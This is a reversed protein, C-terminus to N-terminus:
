SGTLLRRRRAKQRRTAAAARIRACRCRESRCASLVSLGVALESRRGGSTATETQTLDVLWWTVTQTTHRSAGVPPSELEKMKKKKEMEKHKDEASRPSM